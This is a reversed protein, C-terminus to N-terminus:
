APDKFQVTAKCFVDFIIYGSPLSANPITVFWSVGSHVVDLGNGTNGTSTTNLWQKKRNVFVSSLASNSVNMLPIPVHRIRIPQTRSTSFIKVGNDELLQDETSPPIIGATNNIAYVFRGQTAYATSAVLNNYLATNVDVPGLRPILMWMVKLIRFQRYLASYQAIQPIDNGILNLVGGQIGGTVSINQQKWTETFIPQPNLMRARRSRYMPAKRYKRRPKQFRRKGAM